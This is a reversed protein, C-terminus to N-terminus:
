ATSNSFVVTKWRGPNLVRFYEAFCRQMLHQYEPLGKQKFRDVLAEPKADTTVRHWSEVLFNLDAYYINEGFPPDTFIYDVIGDPIPIHAASGVTVAAKGAGVKAERFAKTLRDLKGGLNYQPSCESTQSAVYYVGNLARNVQSFHSPSYRNLVSFGWIAQEVMFLLMERIRANPQARAKRWLAAM